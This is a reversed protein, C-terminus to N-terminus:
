INTKSKRNQKTKEINQTKKFDADVETTKPFHQMVKKSHLELFEKKYVVFNHMVEMMM